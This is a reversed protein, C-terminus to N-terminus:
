QKSADRVMHYCPLLEDSGSFGGYEAYIEFGFKKYLKIATLNSAIVDLHLTHAGYEEVCHGLLLAGVGRGRHERDICVNTINYGDLDASEKILPAFYGEDVRSFGNKLREPVTIGNMDLTTGCPIVCAIGVIREGHLVVSINSLSFLSNKKELASAFFIQWDPDAPDEALAPYIYPDTLHIYKAIDSASDGPLAKRCVYDFTKM